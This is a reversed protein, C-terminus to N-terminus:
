EESGRENEDGHDNGKTEGGERRHLLDLRVWRVRRVFAGAAGGHLGTFHPPPHQRATARVSTSGPREGRVALAHPLQGM